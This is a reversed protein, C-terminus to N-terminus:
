SRQSDLTVFRGPRALFLFPVFFNDKRAEIGVKGGTEERGERGERGVKGGEGVQGRKDVKGGRERVREEEKGKWAVSGQKM